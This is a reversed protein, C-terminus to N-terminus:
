WFSTFSEWIASRSRRFPMFSRGSCCARRSSEPHWLTSIACDGRRIARTRTFVQGFVLLWLAPQVMRTLLEVPDHILKRVDSEAVAATQQFFLLPGSSSWAGRPADLKPLM